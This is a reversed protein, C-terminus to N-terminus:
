EKARQFIKGVNRLYWSNGNELHIVRFEKLGYISFYTERFSYIQTGYYMFEYGHLCCNEVVVL